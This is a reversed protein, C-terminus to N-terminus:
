VVLIGTALRTLANIQPWKTRRPELGSFSKRFLRCLKPNHRLGAVQRARALMGAHGSCVMDYSKTWNALSRRCQMYGPVTWYTLDIVITVALTVNM